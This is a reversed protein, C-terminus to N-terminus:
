FCVFCLCFLYFPFIQHGLTLEQSCLTFALTVETRTGATSAQVTEQTTSTGPLEEHGKSHGKRM